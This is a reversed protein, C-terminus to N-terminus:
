IYLFNNSYFGCVANVDCKTPLVWARKIKILIKLRKYVSMQIM